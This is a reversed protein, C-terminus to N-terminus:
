GALVPQRALDALPPEDDAARAPAARRQDLDLVVAEADGLLPEVVGHEAADPQAVDVLPQADDVAGVVGYPEAADGTLAGAGAELNGLQDHGVADRGSAISIRASTTSSSSGALSSSHKRSAPSEPTSTAPCAALPGSASLATSASDGSRTRSSMWIGPRVPKSTARRRSARPSMGYTTNTVANSWYAM